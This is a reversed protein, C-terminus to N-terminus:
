DRRVLAATDEGFTRKAELLPRIEAASPISALHWLRSEHVAVHV